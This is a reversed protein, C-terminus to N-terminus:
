LVILKSSYIFSDEDKIKVMRESFKLKNKSLIFVKKLDDISMDDIIDKIIMKYIHEDTVISNELLDKTVITSTNYEM